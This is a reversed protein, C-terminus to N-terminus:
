LNSKRKTVFFISMSWFGSLLIALGVCFIVTDFYQQGVSTVIGIILGFIIMAISMVTDYVAYNMGERGAELNKAFLKRWNVLNLAGGLGVIFMGIYYGIPSVVWPLLMYPIGMMINGLSLLIIDDRDRKIKDTIYGIPIQFFGRSFNFFAVGVGVVELAKEGFKGSLYIGVFSTLVMFLGWTFVDSMTLLFIVKNLGFKKGILRKKEFAM